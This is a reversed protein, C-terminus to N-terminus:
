VHTRQIYFIWSRETNELSIIAIPQAPGKRKSVNKMDM